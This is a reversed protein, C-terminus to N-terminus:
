IDRNKTKFFLHKRLRSVHFVLHVSSSAPLQLKYAVQGVKRLIKFPGCFRPLLKLVLGIKLNTSRELVRLYVQEGEQFHLPMCKADVFKKYHDQM